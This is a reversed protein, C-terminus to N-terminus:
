PARAAPSLWGRYRVILGVIPAAIEVHFGFRGGDDFEFTTGGPSLWGPMRVGLLKWGRVVYNLREGDLVLAIAFSVPGFREEAMHAWPGQGEGLVSEFPKGAFIRRWRERGGGRSIEVRLPVGVGARPFGVIAAILQAGPHRGREIDAAGEFVADGEGAHLALVPAPQRGFAEGLVRAFVPGIAPAERVGTVIRRAAFLPDFDALTLDGTAARAGPAIPSGALRRRIIAAAAMAPISPGDAGEAILHWTRRTPAGGRRGAVEVFMGGRDEGWRVIESV